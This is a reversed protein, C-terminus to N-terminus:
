GGTGGKARRLAAYLAACAGMFRNVRNLGAGATEVGDHTAYCAGAAEYFARLAEEVADDRAPLPLARIAAALNAVAGNVISAKMARPVHFRDVIKACAERVAEADTTAPPLALAADWGARIGALWSARDVGYPTVMQAVADRYDASTFDSDAM